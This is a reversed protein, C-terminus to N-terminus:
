KLCCVVAIIGILIALVGCIIGAIVGAKMVHKICDSDILDYGDICISCNTLLDFNDNCVCTPSM